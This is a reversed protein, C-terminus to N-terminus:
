AKLKLILGYHYDGANISKELAFGADEFIKKAEAERVVHKEDPGMNSFSDSWDVLLVRGTRKIIRKIERAFNSKHEIQFLTNSVIIADISMDRLKTGGVTDLNGWIVEINLLHESQATSKLKALMDKQIDVAYVRGKDGVMKAAALSYFGSGSGLDAVRDGEQLGFQDLNTQPNSFM